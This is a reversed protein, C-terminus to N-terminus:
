PKAGRLLLTVRLGFEVTNQRPVRVGHRALGRRLAETAVGTGIALVMDTVPALRREIAVYTARRAAARSAHFPFGHYTHVIM